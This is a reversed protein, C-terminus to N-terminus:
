IQRELNLARDVFHKTLMIDIAICAERGGRSSLWHQKRFSKLLGCRYYVGTRCSLRSLLRSFYRNGAIHQFTILFAASTRILCSLRGYAVIDRRESLNYPIM